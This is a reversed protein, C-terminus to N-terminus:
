VMRYMQFASGDFSCEDEVFQVVKLKVLEHDLITRNEEHDTFIILESAGNLKRRTRNLEGVHEAIRINEDCLYTKAPVFIRKLNTWHRVMIVVLNFLEKDDFQTEIHVEEIHPVALHEKGDVADILEDFDSWNDWNRDYGMYVISVTKLHVLERLAPVVDDLVIGQLHIKTLQKVNCLQHALSHLHRTASRDDGRVQFKLDLRKFQDLAALANLHTCLTDDSHRFWVFLHVLNVAHEKLAQIIQVANHRGFHDDHFKLGVCQIQGNMQLFKSFTEADVVKCDIYSLHTLRQYRQYLIAEVNESHFEVIVKRVSPCYSLFGSEDTGGDFRVVEVNRLFGEIEGCISRLNIKVESDLHVRRLKPDCKQQVLNVIYSMLSEQIDECNGYELRVWLTLNKIFNRFHKFCSKLPWVSLVGGSRIKIKVTVTAEKPHKRRFHNDCLAQLRKCTVSCSCLDDLSLWELIKDICDDNLITLSNQMPSM